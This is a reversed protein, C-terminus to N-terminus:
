WSLKNNHFSFGLKYNRMSEHHDNTAYGEKKAITNTKSPSIFDQKLAHCRLVPKVCYHFVTISLSPNNASTYTSRNINYKRM